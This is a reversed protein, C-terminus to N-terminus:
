QLLFSYHGTCPGVHGSFGLGQSSGSWIFPTKIGLAQSTFTPGHVPVETRCVRRGSGRSSGQLIGAQTSPVPAYVGGEMSAVGAEGTVGTGVKRCKSGEGALGM